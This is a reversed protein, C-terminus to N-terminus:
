DIRKSKLGKEIKLTLLAYNRYITIYTNVIKLLEEKNDAIITGHRAVIELACLINGSSCSIPIGIYQSYEGDYKSPNGNYGFNQKIEDETPYIVVKPNNELFLKSYQWNKKKNLIIHSGLVSPTSNSGGHHAIMKIYDSNRRRTNDKYRMYVNVSIDNGSKSIKSMISVIDHCMYSSITEFNWNILDLNSVSSIKKALSNIEQQSIDMIYNLSKYEDQYINIVSQQREISKNLERIKISLDEQKKDNYAVFIVYAIYLIVLLMFVCKGITIANIFIGNDDRWKIDSWITGILFPVVTTMIAKIFWNNLFKNVKM